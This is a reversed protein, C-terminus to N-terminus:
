REANALLEVGVAFLVVSDPWVGSQEIALDGFSGDVVLLEQIELIVVNLLVVVVLAAIDKWREAHTVISKESCELMKGM